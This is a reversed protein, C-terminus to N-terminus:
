SYNFVSHIQDVLYQTTHRLHDHAEDRVKFVNMIEPSMDNTVKYMEIALTHINDHHVSVSNGEVLLEKISSRKDNYIIRLCREHLRSVKNNLFRSHSMWVVHCYNFQATFFVNMLIRRKPLEM